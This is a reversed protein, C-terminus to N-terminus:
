SKSAANESTALRHQKHLRYLLSPHVKYLEAIDIVRNNRDGMMNMAMELRKGTLKKKRGGKRGRARAAALGAHTRERIISREFEALAGFLHFTLKGGPTTTDVNESLSKFGVGKQELTNVLAILDQLSRGLRDLKWVAVTDGERVYDLMDRLGPRDAKAGSLTDHYQRACGAKQLADTQLDLRQDTTSVRAYGVLV